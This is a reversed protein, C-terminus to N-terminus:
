TDRVHIHELDKVVTVVVITGLTAGQAKREYVAPISDTIWGNFTLLGTVPFFEAESSSTLGDHGPKYKIDCGLVESRCRMLM